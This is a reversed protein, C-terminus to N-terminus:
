LLQERNRVTGNVPAQKSQLRNNILKLRTEVSQSKSLLNKIKEMTTKWKDSSKVHARKLEFLGEWTCVTFPKNVTHNKYSPNKEKSLKNLGLSYPWVFNQTKCLNTKFPSHEISRFTFSFDDFCTILSVKSGICYLIKILCKRFM